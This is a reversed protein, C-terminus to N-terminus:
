ARTQNSAIMARKSATANFGLSRYLRVAPANAEDVALILSTVGHDRATGLGHELLRHALGQGRFPVSLGLYVVEMAARQPVTNLLMVGVPEGQKHLAWWLRPDFRGTAMHGAIIDGIERLGLLGPCDLTQEYSALIAREFIPRTQEDFHVAEIGRELSMPKSPLNARRQMYVLTALDTFGASAMARAELKQHPDLLAQVLNLRMAGQSRCAERVLQGTVAVEDAVSLPSTFVMGARGASPVLMASAMVREGRMACWLQELSLRHAQAFSIFQTVAVDAADPRGTLLVSLAVRRLPQDDMTVLRYRVSESGSGGATPRVANRHSLPNTDFPEPM